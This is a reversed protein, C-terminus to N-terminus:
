WVQLVKSGFYEVVMGWWKWKPAVSGVMIFSYPNNLSLLEELVGGRIRKGKEIESEMGYYSTVTVPLFLITLYLINYFEFVSM